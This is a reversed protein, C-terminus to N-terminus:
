FRERAHIERQRTNRETDSWSQIETQIKRIDKWSRQNKSTQRM